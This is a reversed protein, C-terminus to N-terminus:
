VEAVGTQIRILKDARKLNKNFKKQDAKLEALPKENEENPDYRKKLNPIHHMPIIKTKGMRKKKIRGKLTLDQKELVEFYLKEKEQKLFQVQSQLEKLVQAGDEGYENKLFEDDKVEFGDDAPDKPIDKDEKPM